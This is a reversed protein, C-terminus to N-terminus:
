QKREDHRDLLMLRTTRSGSLGRWSFWYTSPDRKLVRCTTFSVTDTEGLTHATVSTVDTAGFWSMLISRAGLTVSRAEMRTREDRVRTRGRRQRLVEWHRRESTSDVDRRRARTPLRLVNKWLVRIARLLIVNRWIADIRKEVILAADAVAADALAVADGVREVGAGAIILAAIGLVAVALGTPRLDRVAGTWVTGYHKAISQVATIPTCNTLSAAALAAGGKIKEIGLATTTLGTPGLCRVVGNWSTDTGIKM